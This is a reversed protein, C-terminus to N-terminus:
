PARALELAVVLQHVDDETSEGNTICARIIESDEFRAVAVWARGGALLRDVISRARGCGLPPKICLVALPSDNVISWGRATLQYRLMAALRISHEVHQAYGAWGAAALSLFLRLGLFRRSWQASSLYPDLQPVNSPMFSTTVQFASSLAQPHRTIFMGCGMTTAFWKHADITISDAQEIGSLLYRLHEAAILAGGWAADVHYWMNASRALDACEILPDIMGANTTGATAAIMVPVCGRKRDGDLASALANPDMRGCGDTAVLRVASRGIGAQHAIKLWALHSERSVYFVPAGKFARSGITAFEANCTTLACILSTYNAESGGSTFHGVAPPPLGARLAIARIVHAEIEVPVPSTTSTALQPNFSAAIRDACQAPFTPSPNFLGFYRPHTVHVVGEEMRAVIWQLLQDIPYPEAFDFSTLENRFAAPDITPTVVGANVRATADLLSRTLLDDVRERDQRLPFLAQTGPMPQQHYSDQMSIINRGSSPRTCVQLIYSLWNAYLRLAQDRWHWRLEGSNRPFQLFIDTRRDRMAQEQFAALAVATDADFYGSPMAPYNDRERALFRRVDRRYEHFLAEPDYELHGQLFISLARGERVFIDAGAEPSRSLIQYGKSTLDEEPLENQRSHPVRWRAPADAVIEHDLVRQCEFVGSLKERLPRRPIGDMHLVAAHAALCSWVTPIAHSNVQDVLDSLTRWYPEDQLLTARPETGTVILGDLPGSWLQNVDEYSQNVYEQGQLGRPLGPLSFYRVYVSVNQSAAGLLSRFQRETTHLAGDPMNNVLGIVLRCGDSGFPRSPRDVSLM